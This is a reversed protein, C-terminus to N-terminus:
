YSQVYVTYTGTSDDGYESVDIYYTGDELYTDILFNTDTGGDDNLNIENGISDYLRGYTDMAGETYIRVNHGIGGALDFRYVDKDGAYDIKSNNQVTSLNPSGIFYSSYIDNGVNDVSGSYILLTYSDASEYVDVYYDGANLITAPYYGSYIGLSTGNEDYLAINNSGDGYNYMGNTSINMSLNTDDSDIHIKIYDHDGTYNAYGNVEHYDGAYVYASTMMSSDLYDPHLDTAGANASTMQLTYNDSTEHVDVYYYGTHLTVSPYSNSYTSYYIGYEDYLAIYNEGNGYSYVGNTLLNFSIDTNDNEVYIKIYDHDYTFNMQGIVEYYNDYDINQATYATSEIYDLYDDSSSDAYSTTIRLTYFDTTEHVNIFYYGADLTINPYNNSSTGYQGGYQDYLAIYDGGNGYNYVGNGDLSFSINTNDSEVYIKIYDHDSTYNMYGYVEYNGGSSVSASTYTSSDLYDLFDDNFTENDSTGGTGIDVNSNGTNITLYVYPGVKNSKNVARVKIDYRPQSLYSTISINGSNDISVGSPADVLQIEKIDTSPNNTGTDTRTFKMTTSENYQYTNLTYPELLPEDGCNIQILAQAKNSDGYKSTAIVELDYNKYSVCDLNTNSNTSIVGTSSIDFNTYGSGQLRFSNISSGGSSIVEVKGLTQTTTDNQDINALFSRLVPRDTNEESGLISEADSCAAFFLSVLTLGLLILLKKM